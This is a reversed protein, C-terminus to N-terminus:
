SNSGGNVSHDVITPLPMGIMKCFQDLDSMRAGGGLEGIAILGGGALGNPWGYAHALKDIAWPSTTASSRRVYSRRPMFRESIKDITPYQFSLVSGWRNM